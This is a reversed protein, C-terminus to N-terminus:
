IRNRPGMGEGCAAVLYASTPAILFCAGILISYVLYTRFNARFMPRAEIVRKNAEGIARIEAYRREFEAQNAEVQAAVKAEAATKLLDKGFQNIIEEKTMEVWFIQESLSTGAFSLVFAMPILTAQRGTALEFERNAVAVYDEIVKDVTDLTARNLEAIFHNDSNADATEPTPSISMPTDILIGKPLAACKWQSLDSDKDLYTPIAPWWHYFTDFKLDGFQPEILQVFLAHTQPNPPAIQGQITLWDPGCRLKTEKPCSLPLEDWGEFTLTNGENSLTMPLLTRPSTREYKTLNKDPRIGCEGYPGRFTALVKAHQDDFLLGSYLWGRSLAQAGDFQRSSDPIPLEPYPATRVLELNPLSYHRWGDVAALVLEQDLVKWQSCSVPLNKIRKDDKVSYVVFEPNGSRQGSYSVALSRDATLEFEGKIESSEVVRYKGQATTIEFPEGARLSTTALLVVICGFIVKM